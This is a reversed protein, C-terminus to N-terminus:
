KAKRKKARDEAEKAAKSMKSYGEAAGFRMKLASEAGSRALSASMPEARREAAKQAPKGETTVTPMGIIVVGSSRGHSPASRHKPKANDEAVSKLADFRKRREDYKTRESSSKYMNLQDDIDDGAQRKKLKGM